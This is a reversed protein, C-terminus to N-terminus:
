VLARANLLPIEFDVSHAVFSSNQNLESANFIKVKVGKSEPSSKKAQVQPVTLHACTHIVFFATLLIRGIYM